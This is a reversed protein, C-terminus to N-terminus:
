LKAYLASLRIKPKPLTQDLGIKSRIRVIKLNKGISPAKGNTHIEIFILTNLM